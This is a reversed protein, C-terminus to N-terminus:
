TGLYRLVDEMCGWETGREREREAGVMLGLWGALWGVVVGRGGLFFVRTMWEGGRGIGEWDGGM